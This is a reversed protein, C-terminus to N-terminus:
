SLDRRSDPLRWSEERLYVSSDHPPNGRRVLEEEAKKRLGAFSETFAKKEVLSGSTEIPISKVKYLLNSSVPTNKRCLQDLALLNEDVICYYDVYPRPLIERQDPHVSEWMRKYERAGEEDIKYQMTFGVLDTIIWTYDLFLKRPDQKHDRWPYDRNSVARSPGGYPLGASQFLADIIPECARSDGIRGLSQIVVQGLERSSPKGRWRDLTFILLPRALRIM